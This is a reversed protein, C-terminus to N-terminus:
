EAYPRTSDGGDRNRLHLEVFVGEGVPACFSVKSLLKVLKGVTM